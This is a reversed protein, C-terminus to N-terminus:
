MRRAYSLLAMVSRHYDGCMSYIEREAEDKKGEKRLEVIKMLSEVMESTSEILPQPGMYVPGDHPKDRYLHRARRNADKLRKLAKEIPADPKDLLQNTISLVQEYALLVQTMVKDKSLTEKLQNLRQVDALYLQRRVENSSAKYKPWISEFRKHLAKGEAMNDDRYAKDQRYYVHMDDFLAGMAKANVLFTPIAEDVAQLKPSMKLARRLNMESHAFNTPLRMPAYAAIMKPKKMGFKRMGMTYNMVMLDVGPNLMQYGVHVAHLKADVGDMQAAKIVPLNTASNAKSSLGQGANQGVDGGQQGKSKDSAVFVLTTGLVACVLLIAVAVGALVWTQAARPGTTTPQPPMTMPAPQAPPVYPQEPQTPQHYPPMEELTPVIQGAHGHSTKFDGQWSVGQLADRFAITSPWRMSPEVAIARTLVQGFPSQALSEPIDHRGECHAVFYGLASPAEVVPKGTLMEILILGVQYVDLSPSVEQREIYEPAMYAPTGAFQNTATLKADPSDFVRAIGYDLVVLRENPTNPECLYLNSPKLDKHVVGQEHGRNLATLVPLFLRVAREPDMAGHMKLEEELDHGNLMEMAIYPQNNTPVYGYDYITVVNPVDLKSALQAEREFRERFIKMDRSSGHIDLVKLAVPKNLRTHTARYVMAFGGQGLVGDIRYRDDILLGNPLLEMDQDDFSTM